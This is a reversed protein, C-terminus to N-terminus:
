FSKPIWHYMVKSPKNKVPNLNTRGVSGISSGRDARGSIGSSGEIGKIGSIGSLRSIGSIGHQLELFLFCNIFLRSQWSLMRPASRHLCVHGIEAIPSVGRYTPAAHRFGAERDCGAQLM